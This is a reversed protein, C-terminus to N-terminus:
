ETFPQDPAPDGAQALKLQVAEETRQQFWKFGPKVVFFYVPQTLFALVTAQLAIISPDHTPVHILYNAGATITAVLAVITIMIRESQVSFWKKIALVLPSLVGSAGVAAWPIHNALYNSVNLLQTLIDHM